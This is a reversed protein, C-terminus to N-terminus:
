RQDHYRREHEPTLWAVADEQAFRKMGVAKLSDDSVKILPTYSPHHHTKYPNNHKSNYCCIMAWRPHESKNQDSQHLTNAHFFVVDGPDLEVYVLDLVTLCADVRARDAGAQDGTLVHDIRGLSHSKRIVQLCGNEKTAKDVAIMVSALDPFLLGNDYWYGYDQHWAWAGGVKPDKLIMKSHYHYAEDDLLLEINDVIRQCRAFHGYIGDGPHNWLSLRITGGEGDAKGFSNDDLVKDDRASKRLLDIEEVAFWKRVILFGDEHYSKIQEATLKM